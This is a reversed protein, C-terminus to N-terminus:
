SLSAREGATIMRQGAREVARQFEAEWVPAHRDITQSKAWRSARRSLRARLLRSRILRDLADFWNDDEVLLGGQKEGLGRYPGVPSAVWAAGGAAYEKLKVDSRARNFPSDVLPAIGIDIGSVVRFLEEHSVSKIHEYRDSHLPLRVGVTLVRMHAHVELLRLLADVIKLQPLDAAHELGAVWGVVVGDHTARRNSCLDDPDLYNGVVVVRHAGAGRYKEALTHSPTTVLDALRAAAMFSAAFGRNARFGRLSSKGGLMDSSHFDDDNDFSIAVGRRSLERLDAIRDKRRFCHVLDCCYLDRLPMDEEIDDLRVVEHGRNALAHMPITVRYNSNPKGPQLIFGLVV